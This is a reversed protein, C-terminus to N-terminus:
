LEDRFTMTLNRRKGRSYLEYKKKQKESIASALTNGSAFECIRYM